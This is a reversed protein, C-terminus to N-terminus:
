AHGHVRTRLFVESLLGTGSGIDAITAARTLQCAEQLFEVIAQPYTPRYWRYNEVTRSFRSISDAM